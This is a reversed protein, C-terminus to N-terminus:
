HDTVAAVDATSIALCELSRRVRAPGHEAITPKAVVALREKVDAGRHGRRYHPPDRDGPDVLVEGDTIPMGVARWVPACEREVARLHGRDRLKRGTLVLLRTRDIAETLYGALMRG